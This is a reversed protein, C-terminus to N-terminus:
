IPSNTLNVINEFRMDVELSFDAVEDSEINRANVAGGSNIVAKFKGTKPDLEKIQFTGAIWKYSIDGSIYTILGTPGEESKLLISKYENVWGKSFDAGQIVILFSTGNMDTIRLTANEKTLTLDNYGSKFTTVRNEQDGFAYSLTGLNLPALPGSSPRSTRKNQSEEQIVETTESEVSENIQDTCSTVAFFFALISIFLIRM